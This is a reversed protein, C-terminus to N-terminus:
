AYQLPHKEESKENRTLKFMNEYAEVKQDLNMHGWPLIQEVKSL